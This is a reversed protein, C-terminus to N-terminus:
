LVVELFLKKGKISIVDGSKLVAGDAPVPADNLWTPNQASGHNRLVWGRRDLARELHFQKPSAFRLEPDQLERLNSTGLDIAVRLALNRGTARSRLQIVQPVDAFGCAPCPDKESARRTGCTPCQFDM